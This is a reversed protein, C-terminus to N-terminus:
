QVSMPFTIAGPLYFRCVGFDLMEIQLGGETSRGPGVLLFPLTRSERAETAAFCCPHERIFVCGQPNIGHGRCLVTASDERGTHQSKGPSVRRPVSPQSGASEDYVHDWRSIQRCKAGYLVKQVKGEESSGAKWWLGDAAPVLHLSSQMAHMLPISM